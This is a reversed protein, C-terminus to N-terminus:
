TTPTSVATVAPAVPEPAGQGSEIMPALKPSRNSVQAKADSGLEEPTIHGTKLMDELSANSAQAPKMTGAGPVEAPDGEEVTFHAAKSSTAQHFIVKDGPHAVITHYPGEGYLDGAPVRIAPGLDYAAWNRDAWAPMSDIDEFVFEQDTLPPVWQGTIGTPMPQKTASKAM